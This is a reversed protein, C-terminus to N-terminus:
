EVNPGLKQQNVFELKLLFQRRRLQLDLLNSPTVDIIPILITEEVKLGSIVIVEVVRDGMKNVILRPGNCLGMSQNFNILLIISAGVKSDLCHNSLGLIKLSHLLKRLEM